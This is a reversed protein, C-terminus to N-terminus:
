RTTDVGPETAAVTFAGDSDVVIVPSVFPVDYVNLTYARL